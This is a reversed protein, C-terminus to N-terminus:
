CRKLAGETVCFVASALTVVMTIYVCTLYRAASQIGSEDWVRTRRDVGTAEDIGGFGSVLDASSLSPNKARADRAKETLHDDGGAVYVKHTPYWVFTLRSFAGQYLLSSGLFSAGFLVSAALWHGRRISKWNAASIGLFIILCLFSVVGVPLPTGTEDPPAITKLFGSFAALLFGVVKIANGLVRM